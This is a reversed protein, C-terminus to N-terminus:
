CVMCGMRCVISTGTTDGVRCASGPWVTCLGPCLRYVASSNSRALQQPGTALTLMFCDAQQWLLAVAAIDGPLQVAAATPRVAVIQM